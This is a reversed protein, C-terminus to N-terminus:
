NGSTAARKEALKAVRDVIAARINAVAIDRTEGTRVLDSIEACRAEYTGDALKKLTVKLQVNRLPPPDNTM